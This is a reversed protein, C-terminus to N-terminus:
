TSVGDGNITVTHSSGCGALAIACVALSVLVAVLAFPALRRM